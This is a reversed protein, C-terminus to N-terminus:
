SYSVRSGAKERHNRIFGAALTSLRGHSRPLERPQWHTPQVVATSPRIIRGLVVRGPGLIALTRSATDFMLKGILQSPRPAAPDRTEVIHDMREVLFPFLAVLISWKSRRRRITRSWGPM